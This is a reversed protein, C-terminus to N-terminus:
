GPQDQANSRHQAAHQHAEPGQDLVRSPHEHAVLMALQIVQGEPKQWVPKHGLQNKEAM